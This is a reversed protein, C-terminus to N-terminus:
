RIDYEPFFFQIELERTTLFFKQVFSFVYGYNKKKHNNTNIKQQKKQQNKKLSEFNLFNHVIKHFNTSPILNWKECSMLLYVM